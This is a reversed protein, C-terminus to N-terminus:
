ARLGVAEMADEWHWYVEWRSIRGRNSFSMLVGGIRTLPVGSTRGRSALRVRTLIRDGLDTVEEVAWQPRGMEVTWESYSRLLGEHGEYREDFGTATALGTVRVDVDPEFVVPVVADLDGRNIAQTSSKVLLSM